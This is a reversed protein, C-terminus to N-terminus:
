ENTDSSSSELDVETVETSGSDKHTQHVVLFHDVWERAESPSLKEVTDGQQFLDVADKTHMGSRLSVAKRSIWRVAQKWNFFIILAIAAIFIAYLPWMLGQLGMSILFGFIVGLLIWTGIFSIINDSRM